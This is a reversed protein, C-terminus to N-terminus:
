IYQGGTATTGAVTGPIFSSGGGGTNCVGNGNIDYRKGTVTASYTSVDFSAASLDIHGMGTLCQAVAESYAVNATFTISGGSFYYSGGAEAKIHSEGGGSVSYSSALVRGGDRVFVQRGTDADGFDVQALEIQAGRGVMLGTYNPVSDVNEVSLNVLVWPGCHEAWVGRVRVDAPVSGNGMIRVRGGGGRLINPLNLYEGYDGTDVTITIDNGDHIIMDEAAVRLAHQITLFSGGADNVLGSNSNSGTKRVYYATNARRMGATATAPICLSVVKTGASFSLPVSGSSSADPAIRVLDGGSIKGIGTEWEGTPAGTGDVAHIEYPFPAAGITSFARFGPTTASFSINGTGTSASLQKVRDLYQLSSM